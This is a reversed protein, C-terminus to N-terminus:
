RRHNRTRIRRVHRQQPPKDNPTWKRPTHDAAAALQCGTSCFVGGADDELVRWYERKRGCTDCIRWARPPRMPPSTTRQMAM